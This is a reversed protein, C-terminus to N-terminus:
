PNMSVLLSCSECVSELVLETGRLKVAKQGAREKPPVLIHFLPEGDRGVLSELFKVWGGQGAFQEIDSSM